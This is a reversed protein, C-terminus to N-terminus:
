KKVAMRSTQAVRGDVVARYFYIGSAVTRNNDDRMDWITNYSRIQENNEKKLGAKMKLDDFSMNIRLTRVRQGRVNFIEIIPEKGAKTPYQFSISVAMTRTLYVPNPFHSLNYGAFVPVTEDDESVPEGQFEFAGMDIRDGYVRPNGALDFEPLNLHSIDILGTNICPSTEHLHYYGITNPALRESFMGTFRPSIDFLVDHSFEKLVSEFEMKYILSNYVEITPPVANWVNSMVLVIENEGTIDPNYFISNNIVSNGQLHIAANGNRNNAVTINNLINNSANCGLTILRSSPTRNNSILANNIIINSTTPYDNYSGFALVGVPPHASMSNSNIVIINNAYTNRVGDTMLSRTGDAIFNNINLNRSQTVFLSNGSSNRVIVNEITVDVAGNIHISGSTLRNGEMLVNELHFSAGQLLMVNGFQSPIPGFNTITMNSVVNYANPRSSSFMTQRSSGNIITESMGAGVLNVNGPLIFPFLQGDLYTGAALHITKPNDRDNVIM